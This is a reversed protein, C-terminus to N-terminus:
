SAGRPDCRTEQGGHKRSRLATLLNTAESKILDEISESGLIVVRQEALVEFIEDIKRLASRGLGKKAVRGVACM